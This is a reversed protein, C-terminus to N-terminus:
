NETRLDSLRTAIEDIVSQWGQALSRVLAPYGDTELPTKVHFQDGALYENAADRIIWQGSVIASGDYHGQFRDLAIHVHYAKHPNGSMRDVFRYGGYSDLLRDKLTRRLQATLSDAWRHAYASEIELESTQYVIGPSSLYGGTEIGLEVFVPQADQQESAMSDIPLTYHAVKAPQSTCACLLAGIFALTLIPKM